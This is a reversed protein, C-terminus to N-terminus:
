QDWSVDLLELKSVLRYIIHIIMFHGSQSISTCLGGGYGYSGHITYTGVNPQNKHYILLYIYLGMSGIPYINWTATDKARLAIYLFCNGEPLPRHRIRKGPHITPHRCQATMWSWNHLRITDTKFDITKKTYQFQEVRSISHNWDWLMWTYMLTQSNM